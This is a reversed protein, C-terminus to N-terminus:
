NTSPPHELQPSPQVALNTASSPPSPTPPPPTPPPPPPPPPPPSPSSITPPLATSITKTPPPANANITTPPPNPNETKKHIIFEKVQVFSGWVSPDLVLSLKHTPVSLKFTIFKLTSLDADKKILAYCKLEEKPINTKQSISDVIDSSKTNKDFRSLHLWKINPLACLSSPDSGFIKKIKSVSKNNTPVHQSNINVYPSSEKIPVLSPLFANSLNTLALSSSPPLSSSLSSSSSSSSSNSSSPLSSSTSSSTSAHLRVAAAAAASFSLPLTPISISDTLQTYPIENNETTASISSLESKKATKRPPSSVNLFGGVLNEGSLGGGSSILGCGGRQFKNEALMLLLWWSGGGGSYLEGDVFLM